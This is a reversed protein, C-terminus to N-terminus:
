YRRRTTAHPRTYGTSRRGRLPPADTRRDRPPRRPALPPRPGAAAAVRPPVGRSNLTGRQQQEPPKYAPRVVTSKMESGTKIIAKSSKIHEALDSGFLHEDIKTNKVTDRINKNLTNLAAFRRSQSERYHSDCILRGADSLTKLIDQPVANKSSLAWNLVQGIAALSSSLQSQKSQSYLDKKLNIELLAAKIELNLKPVRMNPCNEPPLYRKVLELQIDKSLGNTLIHAWRTAIDKHLKEGYAKNSTPDEGLIELIEPELSPVTEDDLTETTTTPLAAEAPTTPAEIPLGLGEQTAASQALTASPAPSVVPVSTSNGLEVLEPQVDEVDGYIDPSHNGVLFNYERLYILCIVPKKLFKSHLFQIKLVVLTSNKGACYHDM